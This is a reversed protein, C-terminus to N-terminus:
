LWDPEGQADVVRDSLDVSLYKEHMEELREAQKPSLTRGHHLAKLISDLFDAEWSTVDEEMEDLERAM